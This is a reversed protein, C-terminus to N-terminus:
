GELKRLRREVNNNLQERWRDRYDKAGEDDMLERCFGAIDDGLVEGASAGGVATTELLGVVGEMVPTLNRGTFDGRLVLHGKIQEWAEQYDRPLAAVRADFARWDRTMDNGTIRDWFNM